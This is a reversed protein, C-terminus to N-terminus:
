DLLADPLRVRSLNLGKYDIQDIARKLTVIDVGGYGAHTDGEEHGVIEKAVDLRVDASRMRGVVTHRTSHFTLKGPRLPDPDAIRDVIRNLFKSPATSFYGFADPELEDFLRRAGLRRKREVFRVLGLDALAAHVPVRRWANDSKISQGELVDRVLFYAVGDEEKFDTVALGCAENLRLGSFICILPLWYRWDSVREDGSRYLGAQSAAASGTFLPEDFMRQLEPVTFDRRRQDRNTKRSRKASIGAFPNVPLADGFGSKRYHEFMARLPGLYKNNISTPDLTDAEGRESALAVRGKFDLDRYDPRVSGRAPYHTLATKFQGAISTTIEALDRDDGLWSSFAALASEYDRLRKPKLDGSRAIEVIYDRGAKALRLGSAKHPRSDDSPDEVSRSATAIIANVDRTPRGRAADLDDRLHAHARLDAALWDRVFATATQMDMVAQLRAWLAETLMAQTVARRRADSISNTRLSKWLEARGVLSILRKPVRVRFYYSGGRRVVNTVLSM